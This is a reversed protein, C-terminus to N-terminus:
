KDITRNSPIRDADKDFRQGVAKLKYNEKEQNFKFFFCVKFTEGEPKHSM